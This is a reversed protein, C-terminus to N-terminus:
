IDCGKTGTCAQSALTDADVYTQDIEVVNTWDVDKYERKLDCWTKWLSVHKLCYTMKRIDGDFYRDAFQKARRIWDIKVFWEDYSAKATFYQALAKNTERAPYKPSERVTELEEGHGLVTDCARWLNNDFAHLGDVILGSAFVSADGYEKVLENPTLVTSFPAQTYDLDGSAPLLSIGAFVKQNDFIFKEVDDWEEPKVSCTNSVNHRIQPIVCNDVDTGFEVWNQQTLKVKELLDIASIQNKTIAGQPVECLFSIVNDTGNASWVSKEVSQPNQKAILQGCFETRNVQTRRIYRRAHHPHIGSATGLVCSTSNHSIYSNALYTHTDDVEIDYTYNTSDEIEIIRDVLHSDLGNNKLAEFYKRRYNTIKEMNGSLSKRESIWYRMSNGYSTKTPPMLRMKADKGIARLVVVLERAFQESVTCYTRDRTKDSGDATAYGDIFAEIISVSSTRIIQPIVIDHAKNKLLNNAGLFALLEKSNIAIYGGGHNERYDKQITTDLNFLKKIIKNLKDVGKQEQYNIAIRIGGKHNSGDGYYLGLFWAFDEDLYDPQNIYKIHRKPTNKNFKYDIKSLENKNTSNEYEGIRYPLIDGVGLDSAEKWVYNGDETIVRYKHNLTSELTIGSDLTIKKTNAYGNVFFKRSKKKTNDTHVKINHEQWTEGDINGIEDLRLIGEQTSVLTEPTQCGAPKVCTARAAPNIGIMKAIKKNVELIIKAGKRQIKEDFLIDPNDMWGTISCGLLAERDFIEKSEPPLYKFDTYGAQLTGIIASARCVELFKEETDCYKGNIETLNCGQWGSRGDKTVPRMSIEVCPNFVIELDDVWVFGPEGYEKTASILNSFEEKTTSGKLLVASNNSRGRQPNDKFWAGIKANMMETDDHSFMCLTASRRVGGSLVCDSIHMICDYADIPRLKGAFEDTHFEDSNIRREIVSSIKVLGNKLGEPGPAKFRGAILAGEPRINSFDFHIKKGNYEPFKVPNSFYSDMLAAIADAWGEISDEIIHSVSEGDATRTKINGLKKIHHKQVSFGAGCGCLLVYMTESFVEERDIHTATCNYTKLEHKLIPDIAFQLTRQAALARKKKVQNEAFEIERKLESSELLQKKYKKRHMDFVRTVAEDWTERRKEEPLYQAYRSYFTYDSLAKLSM